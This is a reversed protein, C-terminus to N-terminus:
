HHSQTKTHPHYINIEFAIPVILTQYLNIFPPVNLTHINISSFSYNKNTSPSTIHFYRM